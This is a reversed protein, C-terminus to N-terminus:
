VAMRKGGEFVNCRSPISYEERLQANLTGPLLLLDPESQTSMNLAGRLKRERRKAGIRHQAEARQM